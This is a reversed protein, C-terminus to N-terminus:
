DNGKCGMIIVRATEGIKFLRPDAAGAKPKITSVKVAYPVNKSLIKAVKAIKEFYKSSIWFPGETSEEGETTFKKIVEDICPLRKIQSDSFSQVISTGRTNSIKCSEIINKGPIVNEDDYALFVWEKDIAYIEKATEFSIPIAFKLENSSKDHSERYTFAACSDSSEITFSNDNGGDTRIWFGNLANTPCRPKAPAAFEMAAKILSVSLGISQQM